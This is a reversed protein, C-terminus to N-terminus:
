TWRRLGEFVDEDTAWFEVRWIELIAVLLDVLAAIM